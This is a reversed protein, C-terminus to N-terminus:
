SGSSWRPDEGAAMGTDIVPVGAPFAQAYLDLRIQVEHDRSADKRGATVTAAIRIMEPTWEM